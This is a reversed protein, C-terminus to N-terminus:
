CRRRCGHLRGGGCARGDRLRLLWIAESGSSWRRAFGNRRVTPCAAAAFRRRSALGRPCRWAGSGRVRERVVSLQALRHFAEGLATADDDEDRFSESSSASVASEGTTGVAFNAESRVAITPLDGSVSSLSSYSEVNARAGECPVSFVSAPERRLAVEFVPPWTLRLCPPSMPSLSM